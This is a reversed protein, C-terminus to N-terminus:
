CLNFLCFARMKYPRACETVSEAQLLLAAAGAIFWKRVMTIDGHKLDRSETSAVPHSHRSLLLM